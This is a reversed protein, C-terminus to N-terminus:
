AFELALPMPIVDDLGPRVLKFYATGEAEAKPDNYNERVKRPSNGMEHAVQEYSKTVALRYSGFSHRNANDKREIGTAKRIRNMERSHANEITKFHGPYLPGIRGRFPELWTSLNPQIPVLRDVRSKRAIKRTVAIVGMDWKFASWDLRLIESKRLGAFLGVVECPLWFPSVHELILEAEEISWTVVDHGAKIRAIREAVSRREEPLHDRRRAYRSLQVIADRVNDRRRPGVSLERLYKVLQEDRVKRLDPFEAAFPALINKLGYIHRDSRGLDALEQLMDGLIDATSPAWFRWWHM